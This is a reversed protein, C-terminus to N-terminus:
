ASIAFLGLVCLFGLTWLVSRLTPRDLVYAATYAIRLLVFTVALADATHQPAGAIAAVLVAAAFPPFAELHNRQAWDARRRWGTQAELWLRPAANDYGTGGAKALAACGVPLLSAALISWLAVTM